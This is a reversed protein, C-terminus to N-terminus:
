PAPAAAAEKRLEALHARLPALVQKEDDPTSVGIKEEETLVWALLEAQIKPLSKHERAALWQRVDIQDFYGHDWVPRGHERGDAGTRMITGTQEYADPLGYLERTLLFYCAAGVDNPLYNGFPISQREDKFHALFAPFAAKGQGVLAPGVFHSLRWGTGYLAPDGTDMGRVPGEAAKKPLIALSEVLSEPNDRSLDRASQDFFTCLQWCYADNSPRWSPDANKLAFWAKPEHAADYVRRVSEPPAERDLESAMILLPAHIRAAAQAPDLQGPSAHKAPEEPTDAIVGAVRTKGAAVLLCATAGTSTGWLVPPQSGRAQLWALWTEVELQENGVVSVRSTGHGLLNIALCSRGLAHCLRLAPAMDVRSGAPGPVLIVPAGAPNKVPWWWATVRVGDPTTASAEQADPSLEAATLVHGPKPEQAPQLPNIPPKFPVEKWDSRANVGIMVALLVLIVSSQRAQRSQLM